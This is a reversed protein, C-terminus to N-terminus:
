GLEEMFLKAAAVPDDALCIPAGVVAHTISLKKCHKPNTLWPIGEGEADIRIGPTIVDLGRDKYFKGLTVACVGPMIMGHAGLTAIPETPPKPNDNLSFVRWVKLPTGEAGRVAAETAADTFTSIAAIGMDAYLKVADTTTAQTDAIKLDLFFNINDYANRTVPLFFRNALSLPGWKMWEINTDQRLRYALHSLGTHTKPNYGDIAVILKTM